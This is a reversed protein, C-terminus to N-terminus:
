LGNVSALEPVNHSSCTSLRSRYQKMKLGRCKMVERSLQWRCVSLVGAGWSRVGWAKVYGRMGWLAGEGQSGM